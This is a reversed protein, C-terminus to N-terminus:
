VSAIRRALSLNFTHEKVRRASTTGPSEITHGVDLAIRFRGAYCGIADPTPAAIGLDAAAWLAAAVLMAGVAPRSRDSRKVTAAMRCSRRSRDATLLGAVVVIRVM